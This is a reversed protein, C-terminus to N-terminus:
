AKRASLAIHRYLESPMTERFAMAIEAERHQRLVLFPEAAANMIRMASRMHDLQRHNGAADFRRKLIHMATFGRDDLLTPDIRFRNILLAIREEIHMPPLM